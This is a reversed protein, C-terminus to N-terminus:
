YVCKFRNIIIVMSGTCEYMARGESDSQCNLLMVALKGLQEANMDRCSKKLTLIVRHHCVDLQSMSAGILKAGEQIFKEDMESLEYPVSPLVKMGTQSSADRNPMFYDFLGASAGNPLLTVLLLSVIVSACWM